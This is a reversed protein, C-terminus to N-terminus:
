TTWGLIPLWRSVGKLDLGIRQQLSSDHGLKKDDFPQRWTGDRSTASPDRPDCGDAHSRLGAELFAMLRGEPQHAVLLAAAITGPAKGVLLSTMNRAHEEVSADPWLCHCMEAIHPIDELEAHRVVLHDTVDM